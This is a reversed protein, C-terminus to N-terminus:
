YMGDPQMSGDEPLEVGEMANHQAALLAEHNKDQDACHCGCGKIPKASRFAEGMQMQQEQLFATPPLGDFAPPMPPLTMGPPMEMPPLAMPNATALFSAASPPAYAPTM